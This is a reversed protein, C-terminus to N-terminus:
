KPSTPVPYFTMKTLDAHSLVDNQHPRRPIFHWKPSDLDFNITENLLVCFTKVGGVGAINWNLVGGLVNKTTVGGDLSSVVTRAPDVSLLTMTLTDGPNIGATASSSIAALLTSAAIATINIKTM